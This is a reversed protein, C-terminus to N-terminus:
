GATHNCSHGEAEQGCQHGSGTQGLALYYLLGVLVAHIHLLVQDLHRVQHGCSKLFTAHRELFYVDRIDAAWNDGISPGEIKTALRVILKM